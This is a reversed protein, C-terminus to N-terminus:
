IARCSNARYLNPLFTNSRKELEVLPLLVCSGLLVMAMLIMPCTPGKRSIDWKVSDGSRRVGPLRMGLLLWTFASKGDHLETGNLQDNQGNQGTKVQVAPEGAWVDAATVTATWDVRSSPHFKFFILTSAQFISQDRTTHGSSTEMSRSKTNRPRHSKRGNAFSTSYTSFYVEM